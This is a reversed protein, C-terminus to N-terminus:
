YLDRRYTRLQSVLTVLEDHTIFGQLLSRYALGEATGSPQSISTKLIPFVIEDQDLISCRSYEVDSSVDMVSSLEPASESEREM